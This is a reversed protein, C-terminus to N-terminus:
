NWTHHLQSNNEDKLFKDKNFDNTTSKICVNIYNPMTMALIYMPLVGKGYQELKM